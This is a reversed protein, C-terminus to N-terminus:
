IICTSGTYIFIWVHKLKEPWNIEKLSNLIKRKINWTFTVGGGGWQPGM